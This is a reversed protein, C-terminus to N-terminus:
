QEWWLRLQRISLIVFLTVIYNQGKDEEAVLKWSFKSSTQGSEHGKHCFYCFLRCGSLESGIRNMEKDIHSKIAGLTDKNRLDQCCLPGDRDIPFMPFVHPCGMFNWNTIGTNPDPGRAVALCSPSICFSRHPCHWQDDYHGNKFLHTSALNKISWWWPCDRCIYSEM